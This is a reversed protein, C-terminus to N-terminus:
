PARSRGSEPPHLTTSPTGSKNKKAGPSSRSISSGSSTSATSDKLTGLMEAVRLRVRGLVECVTEWTDAGFLVLDGEEIALRRHPRIKRRRHLIQRDPIEMRRKRVKIFALGKAGAQKALETLNEIQGTTICALGKANLARVVGGNDLAARFVKFETGAFVDGLDTIEM